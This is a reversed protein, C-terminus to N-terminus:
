RIASAHAAALTEGSACLAPVVAHGGRPRSARPAHPRIRAAGRSTEASRDEPRRIAWLLAVHRARRQLVQSSVRLVPVAGTAARVRETALVASALVLRRNRPGRDGRHPEAVRREQAADAESGPTCNTTGAAPTAARSNWPRRPRWTSWARGCGCSTRAGGPGAWGSAFRGCRWGSGSAAPGGAGSPGGSPHASQWRPATQDAATQDVPLRAAPLSQGGARVRRARPGCVGRGWVLPRRAVLRAPFSRWCGTRWRGNRNAAAARDGRGASQAPRSRAAGRDDDERVGGARAPDASEDLTAPDAAHQDSQIADWRPGGAALGALIGRPAPAPGRAPRLARRMLEAFIEWPLRQRAIPGRVTPWRRAFLQFLHEALTGADQMVHFTLAPLVQPLPM